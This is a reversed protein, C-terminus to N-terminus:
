WDEQNVDHGVLERPLHLKWAENLARANLAFADFHDYRFYSDANAPPRDFGNPRHLTLQHMATTIHYLRERGRESDGVAQSEGGVAENVQWVSRRGM